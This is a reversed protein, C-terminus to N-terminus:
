KKVEKKYKRKEADYKEHCSHHTWQYDDFKRTYQHNKTNSLELKTIKNKDAVKHCIECKGDKSKPKHRCIWQHLPIRGVDNGKWRPHKEGTRGFMPNNKGSWRIRSEERRKESKWPLHRGYMHNKTGIKAESMKKKTEETRKYVGTPM